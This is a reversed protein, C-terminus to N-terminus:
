PATCCHLHGASAINTLGTFSLDATLSDGLLTVTVFGTATSANPPVEQLGNLAAQFVAGQASVSLLLTGALIVPFLRTRNMCSLKCSFEAGRAEAEHRNLLQFMEGTNSGPFRFM